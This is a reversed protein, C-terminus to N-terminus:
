LNYFHYFAFFVAPSNAQNSGLPVLSVLWVTHLRLLPPASCWPLLSCNLKSCFIRAGSKVSIVQKEIVMM